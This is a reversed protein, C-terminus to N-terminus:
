ANWESQRAISCTVLIGLLSAGLVANAGSEATVEVSYTNTSTDITHGLSSLGFTHQVEYAAVNAATSSATGMSTATGTTHARRRLEMAPMVAPLAGHAAAGQFSVSVSDLTAGHPLSLPILVDQNASTGTTRWLTLEAASWDADNWMAGLPVSRTVARSTYILQGGLRFMDVGNLILQAALTYTGGNAGDLSNNVATRYLNMMASTLRELASHGGPKPDTHSM